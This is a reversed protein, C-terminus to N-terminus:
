NPVFKNKSDKSIEKLKDVYGKQADEASIDDYKAWADWKSRAELQVAWPQSGGEEKCTGVTARKYMGYFELKTENSLVVDGDKPM